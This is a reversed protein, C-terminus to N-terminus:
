RNEGGMHRILPAIEDPDATNAAPKFKLSQLDPEPEKIMRARVIQAYYTRAQEADREGRILDDAVNLALFNIDEADSTSSIEGRTRDVVISGNFQALPALKDLPVRYNVTQELVNKHPSAFNHQVEEKYLTTRKWPGNGYWSIQRETAEAPPGYKTILQAALRRTKEPWTAAHKQVWALAEASPQQQSNSPMPPPLPVSKVDAQALVHSAPLLAVGTTAAMWVAAAVVFALM